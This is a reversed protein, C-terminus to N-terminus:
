KKRKKGGGLKIGWVGNRKNNRPRNIQKALKVMAPPVEVETFRGRFAEAIQQFGKRAKDKMKFGLTHITVNRGKRALVESVANDTFSGDGLIYIADPHLEFAMEMAESGRTQLCREVTRLWYELKLKNEETAPVWTTAPQPYFLPYATDSFFIVYFRQYRDLQGVSKMLEYVATEFKGNNMSNSNDVVYVFRNGTTKVGFFTAGGKGSGAKTMGTGEDGFLAGIEDFMGDDLQGVGVDTPVDSPVGVDGLSVAGPDIDITPVSTEQLEELEVEQEPEFLEPEEAERNPTTALGVDPRRPDAAITMVAFLILLVAHVVISVTFASTEQLLGRRRGSDDDPAEIRPQSESPSPAPGTKREQRKSHAPQKGPTAVQKSAAKPPSATGSQASGAPKDGPLPPPAATKSNTKGGSNTTM